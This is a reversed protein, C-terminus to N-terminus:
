SSENNSPSAERQSPHSRRTFPRNVLGNMLHNILASVAVSPTQSRPWVATVEGGQVPHGSLLPVLLGERIDMDALFAPLMGVGLGQLLADRTVLMNGTSLSWRPRITHEGIRWQDLDVRTLIARHDVLEAPYQPEPHSALYRPSAVLSTPIVAIRRCVLESDDLPGARIALDIGVSILPVREDSLRLDIRVAPHEEMFSFLLPALMVQGLAIPASLRVLGSPEAHESEAEAQALMAEKVIPQVRQFYRLGFDTPTLARTSRHLLSAGLRQEMLALRRSITAKPLSMTRGAASLSGSEVIHVFLAMDALSDPHM